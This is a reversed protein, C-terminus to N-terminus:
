SRGCVIERFHQPVFKEADIGVARSFNYVMIYGALHFPAEKLEPDREMSAMCPYACQHQHVEKWMEREDEIIFGTMRKAVYYASGCPDSRLVEVRRVLRGDREVRFKPRGMSFTRCFKGVLGSNEQLSCFPKPSAFEIGIEQCKGSLQKRLGPLCWNQNCAPVILAKFECIEPLSTLVDPHIDVAVLVECEFREFLIEPNEVYVGLESPKPLQKVYSIKSTFDYKKCYDCGEIGCAGFTPCLHPYILNIAFRKGFEGSFLLALDM